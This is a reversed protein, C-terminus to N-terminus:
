ISFVSTNHIELVEVIEPGSGFGAAHHASALLQV